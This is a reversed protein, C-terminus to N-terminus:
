MHLEEIREKLTELFSEELIPRIVNRSGRYFQYRGTVRHKRINGKCSGDKRVEMLWGGPRSIPVYEYKTM